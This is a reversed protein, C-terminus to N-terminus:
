PPSCRFSAASESDGSGGYRAVSPWPCLLRTRRPSWDAPVENNPVNSGAGRATAVISAPAVGQEVWAVLADVMDFQDAAPGGSSHNMGPVIFLRASDATANGHVARFGEYWRISDLASFVPDASGHAVLLKGGRAVFKNMATAAPPTMFDVASETYTADKAYVKAGDKEVSFNLAYDPVTTGRGSVVEPSMPPTTMVFALAISDRPGISNVFKWERWNRGRVGADWPMGTYIPLGAFAKALVIKRAESLCGGGADGQCTTIDRQPDFSRQCAALDGVLGDRLGDLADCRALIASSVIDMEAPTFSTELDPVGDPKRARAVTAFQQAHWVQTIAAFPLNYGPTVALIGDYRGTDRAAAVFGHRGGNSTGVLYAKDAPRGYYGAILARAMPTLQAVANYGYDLRAQPDRGFTAAGIVPNDREFAHGADSSLVAFGKLLGNTTPGGGLINGYAPTVFGDLGGNAQYFFRGNWQTPLRMEFGMAYDKGDVPSKRENLKGTVVCHEPMAADIGPLKLTGAAVRQTATIRLGLHTFQSALTECSAVAVGPKAPTPTSPASACATLLAAAALTALRPIPTM